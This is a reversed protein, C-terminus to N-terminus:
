FGGLVALCDNRRQSFNIRMGYIREQYNSNGIWQVKRVKYYSTKGEWSEWSYLISIVINKLNKESYFDM